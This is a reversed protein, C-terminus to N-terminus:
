VICWVTEQFTLHMMIKQMNEGIPVNPVILYLHMCADGEQIGEKIVQIRGIIQHAAQVVSPPLHSLIEQVQKVM